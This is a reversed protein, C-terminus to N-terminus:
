RFFFKGNEFRAVIRKQKKEESLETIDFGNSTKQLLLFFRSEQDTCYLASLPDKSPFESKLSDEHLPECSIANAIKTQNVGITAYISYSVSGDPWSIPKCELVTVETKSTESPKTDDACSFLFLFLLLFILLRSTNAM